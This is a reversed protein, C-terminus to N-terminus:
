NPQNFMGILHSLEKVRGVSEHNIEKCIRDRELELRIALYEFFTDAVDSHPLKEALLKQLEAERGKLM